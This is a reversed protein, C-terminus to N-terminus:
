VAEFIFTTIIGPVDSLAFNSNDYKYIEFNTGNLLAYLGNIAPVGAIGACYNIPQAQSGVVTLGGPTTLNLRISVSGGLANSGSFWSIYLTWFILNGIATYSNKVIAGSGVTWTMPALASFNGASFTISSFVGMRFARGAEYIGQSIYMSGFRDLIFPFTGVPTNDDKLPYIYLATANPVIGWKKQDAAQTTDTLVLGADEIYQSQTFTNSIDTLAANTPVPVYSDWTIGNFREFIKTDTSFYFTGPLADTPRDAALGYGHLFAEKRYHAPLTM